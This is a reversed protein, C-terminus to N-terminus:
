FLFPEDWFYYKLQAFFRKKGYRTMDEPILRSALYNAYDAYWTESDTMIM